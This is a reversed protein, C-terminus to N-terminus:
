PRGSLTSGWCIVGEPDGASPRGGGDAGWPTLRQPNIALALGGRLARTHDISAPTTRSWTPTAMALRAERMVRARMRASARETPSLRVRAFADLRQEIELDGGMSAQMSEDMTRSGSSDPHM